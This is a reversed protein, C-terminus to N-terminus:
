YNAMCVEFPAILYLDLYRIFLSFLRAFIIRAHKLDKLGLQPPHTPPTGGRGSLRLKSQSIDFFVGGLGFGLRPLTHGNEHRNAVGLPMYGHVVLYLGLIM